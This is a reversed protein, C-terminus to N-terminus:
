KCVYVPVSLKARYLLIQVAYTKHTHTHTHTHTYAYVCVCVCVYIYIDRLHIGFVDTKLIIKVKMRSLSITKNPFILFISFFICIYIEITLEIFYVYIEGTAVTTKCANNNAYVLSYLYNNLCCNKERLFSVEVRMECIHSVVNL